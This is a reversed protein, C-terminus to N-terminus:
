LEIPIDSFYEEQSIDEIMLGLDIEREKIEGFQSSIVEYKTSSNIGSHIIMLKKNRIIKEISCNKIETLIYDCFTRHDQVDFDFDFNEKINDIM